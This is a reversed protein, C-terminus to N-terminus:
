VVRRIEFFRKLYFIQGATMAVLVFAEFVAWMVVRSNTSENIARHIKQRVQMYEQEQKVSLLASRLENVMDDLKPSNANETEPTGTTKYAEILHMTFLVVKPTLTSMRNSFCYTYVGDIHASFAFKGSSEREGRYVEKNDPGVIKVDIDLFGGEVVEFMLNMKTGATARELFCQEENADINIYVGLVTSNLIFNLVAFFILKFMMRATIVSFHNELTEDSLHKFASSLFINALHIKLKLLQGRLSPNVHHILPNSIYMVGLDSKYFVM